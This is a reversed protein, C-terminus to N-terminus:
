RNGGVASRLLMEPTSKLLRGPLQLLTPLLLPASLILWGLGTSILFLWSDGQLDFREGFSFTILIIWFFLHTIPVAGFLVAMRAPNKRDRSLARPPSWFLVAFIAATVAAALTALPPMGEMDYQLLGKPMGGVDSVITASFLLPLTLAAPPFLTFAALHGQLLQKRRWLSVAFTPSLSVALAFLFQGLVVAPGDGLMTVWLSAIAGAVLLILVAAVEYVAFGLWPYFWIPRRTRWGLIAGGIYILRLLWRVGQWPQFPAAEIYWLEATTNTLWVSAPLLLFPLAILAATRFPRTLTM